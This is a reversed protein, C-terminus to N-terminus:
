RAEEIWDSPPRLTLTRRGRGAPVLPEHWGALWSTVGEGIDAPEEAIELTTRNRTVALGLERVFWALDAAATERTLEVRLPLGGTGRV